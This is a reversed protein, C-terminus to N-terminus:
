QKIILQKLEETLQLQKKIFYFTQKLQKKIIFQQVAADTSGDDLVQILRDNGDVIGLDNELKKRENVVIQLTEALHQKETTWEQPSLTATEM